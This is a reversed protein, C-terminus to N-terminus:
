QMIDSQVLEEGAPTNQYIRVYDVQLASSEAWTPFWKNKAKYFANPAHPDDDKWPKQCQGDPFYSNTGGVAVNMIIYMEQNFPASKETEYQWPNSMNPPFNGKQWMGDDFTMDLVTEGDFTTKIGTESWELGYNHFDDGLSSTHKYQATTM